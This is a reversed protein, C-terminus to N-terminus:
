NDLLFKNQVHYQVIVLVNWNFKKIQWFLIPLHFFPYLFFSSLSFPLYFFHSLSLYVFPFSFVISSSFSFVPSFKSTFFSSCFNLLFTLFSLFLCSSFFSFVHLFSLMLFVFLSFISFLFRFFFSLITTWYTVTYASLHCQEFVALFFSPPCLFKVLSLWSPEAIHLYISFTVKFRMSHYSLKM